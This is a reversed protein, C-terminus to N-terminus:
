LQGVKQNNILYILVGEKHLNLNPFHTLKMKYPLIAKTGHVCPTRILSISRTPTAFSKMGKFAESGGSVSIHRWVAAQGGNFGCPCYLCVWVYQCSYSQKSKEQVKIRPLVFHYSLLGTLSFTVVSDSSSESDHGVVVACADSYSPCSKSGQRNCDDNNSGM